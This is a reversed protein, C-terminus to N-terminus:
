GHDATLSEHNIFADSILLNDTEACGKEFGAHDAEVAEVDRVVFLDEPRQEVWHFACSERSHLGHDAGRIEL